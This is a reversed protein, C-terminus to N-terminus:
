TTLIPLTCKRDVNGNAVHKRIADFWQTNSTFNAFPDVEDIFFGLTRYGFNFRSYRKNEGADNVIIV